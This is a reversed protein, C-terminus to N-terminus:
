AAGGTRFHLVDRLGAEKLAAGAGNPVKGPAFILARAPGTHARAYGLAGLDRALDPM